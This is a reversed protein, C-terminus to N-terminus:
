NRSPPPTSATVTPKRQFPGTLVQHAKKDAGFLRLDKLVLKNGEVTYRFAFPNLDNITQQSMDKKWQIEDFFGYLVGKDTLTYKPAIMVTTGKEPMECTWRLDTENISLTILSGDEHKSQWVGVHKPAQAMAVEVSTIILVIGLFARM